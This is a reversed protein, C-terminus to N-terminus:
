GSFKPCGSEWVFRHAVLPDSVPVNNSNPGSYVMLPSLSSYSWLVGGNKVLMYDNCAKVQRLTDHNVKKKVM